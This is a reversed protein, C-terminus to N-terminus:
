NMLLNTYFRVEYDSIQGNKATLDARCSELETQFSAVLGSNAFSEEM